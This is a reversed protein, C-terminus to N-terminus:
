FDTGLNISLLYIQRSDLDPSLAYQRTYMAAALRAFVLDIELGYSPSGQYLGASFGIYTRLLLRVGAYLHKYAPLAYVNEYDRYDLAFHLADLDSHLTLGLGANISRPFAKQPGKLPSHTANVVTGALRLDLSNGQFFFLFGADAGLSIGPELNAKLDDAQKQVEKIKSADSLEVVELFESAFLYKASVGLSLFRWFTRSALAAYAGAYAEHRVLINPTGSGFEPDGKKWARLDPEVAAFVAVGGHNTILSTASSLGLHLPKEFLRSVLAESDSAASSSKGRSNALEKANSLSDKGATLTNKVGLWHFIKGGYPLLAPNNILVGEQKAWTLTTGGAGVDFPDEYLPELTRSSARKAPNALLVFLLTLFMGRM